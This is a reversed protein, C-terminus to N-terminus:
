GLDTVLLYGHIYITLINLAIMYDYESLKAYLDSLTTKEDMPLEHYKPSM